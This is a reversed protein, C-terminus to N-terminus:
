LHQLSCIIVAFKKKSSSVNLFVRSM